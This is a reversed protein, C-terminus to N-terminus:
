ASLRDALRVCDEITLGTESDTLVLNRCFPRYLSAQDDLAVWSEWPRGSSRLWAEIEAQRVYTGYAADDQLDQWHPTKGVIRPLIDASFLAQLEQVTRTTRWTSSIVVEVHPHARLVDELLPMSSFLLDQLYNLHPHLVGDIDLFLLMCHLRLEIDGSACHLPRCFQVDGFERM